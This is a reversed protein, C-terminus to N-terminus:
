NPFNCGMNQEMVDLALQNGTSAAVATLGRGIYYSGHEVVSFDSLFNFKDYPGDFEVKKFAPSIHRIINLADGDESLVLRYSKTNNKYDASNFTRPSANIVYADTNNRYLSSHLALGGGLSHGTVAIKRESFEKSIEDMVIKADDYQGQWFLNFNGFIWDQIQLINTGRYAVVIESRETNEWIDAGFGKGSEYRRFRKWGPILFQASDNYANSAMLAYVFSSNAVREYEDGYVRGRGNNGKQYYGVDCSMYKRHDIVQHKSDSNVLAVERLSSCGNLAIVVLILCFLNKAM